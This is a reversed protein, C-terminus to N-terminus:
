CQIMRFHSLHLYCFCCLLQKVLSMEFFFIGLLPRGLRSWRFNTQGEFLFSGAPHSACGQGTTLPTFLNILASIPYFELLDRGDRPAPGRRSRGEKTLDESELNPHTKVFTVIDGDWNGLLNTSSAPPFM